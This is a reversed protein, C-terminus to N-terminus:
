PGRAVHNRVSPDCPLKPPLGDIRHQMAVLRRKPGGQGTGQKQGSIAATTCVACPTAHRAAGHETAATSCVLLLIWAYTYCHCRCCFCCLGPRNRAPRATPIIPPCPYPCPPRRRRHCHFSPHTLPHTLSPARTLPHAAVRAPVPVSPCQCQCGRVRAGARVSPLFPCLAASVPAGTLAGGGMHKRRGRGRRCVCVSVRM